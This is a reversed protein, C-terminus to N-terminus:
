KIQARFEFFIQPDPDGPVLIGRPRLCIHRVNEDIGATPSYTCEALSTPAVVSSSFGVDSAPDFDLDANTESYGFVDAGAEVPGNYDGNFFSLEPPLSDVLFLTDQDVSVSGTNSVAITYILNSDPIAFDEGAMLRSTKSVEIGPIALGCLLINDIAWDDQGLTYAFTVDGSDPLGAPLDIAISLLDWANFTAVPILGSANASFSTDGLTASAGNLLTFDAPDNNNSTVSTVIRLVDTGAVSFLYTSATGGNNWGFDFRLQGGSGAGIGYAVSQLLTGSTSNTDENAVNVFNQGSPAGTYSNIQLGGANPGAQSWASFDPFSSGSLLNNSGVPCSQGSSVPVIVPVTEVVSDCNTPSAIECILYEVTYNGPRTGAAVDVFGTTTNLTLRPDSAIETITVIGTSVPNIGLRDSELVTVNTTGGPVGSIPTFSEQNATIQLIEECNPNNLPLSLDGDLFFGTNPSQPFYTATFSSRGLLVFEITDEPVLSRNGSAGQITATTGDDSITLNSPNSVLLAAFQDLAVQASEGQDIDAFRIRFNATVPTTTGALVFEYTVTRPGDSVNTNFIFDNVSTPRPSNSLNRPAPPTDFTVRMDISQGNIVAANPSVYDTQFIGAPTISSTEFGHFVAGPPAGCVPAAITTDQAFAPMAFLSFLVGLLSTVRFTRYFQHLFLNFIQFEFMKLLDDVGAAVAFPWEPVRNGHESENWYRSACL